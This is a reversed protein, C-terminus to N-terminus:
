LLCCLCWGLAGSYIGVVCFGQPSLYRQLSYIHIHQGSAAFPTVLVGVFAVCFGQPSLHQQVVGYYGSYPLVTSSSVELGVSAYICLM